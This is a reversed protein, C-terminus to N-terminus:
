EESGENQSNESVKYSDEEEKREENNVKESSIQKWKMGKKNKM